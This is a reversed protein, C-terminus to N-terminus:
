MGDTQGDNRKRRQSWLFAGYASFQHSTVWAVLLYHLLTLTLVDFAFTV